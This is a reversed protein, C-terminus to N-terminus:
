PEKRNLSLSFGLFGGILAGILVQIGFSIKWHAYAIPYSLLLLSGVIGYFAYVVAILLAEALNPPEDTSTAPRGKPSTPAAPTSKAGSTARSGSGRGTGTSSVGGPIVGAQAAWAAVGPQHAQSPATRPPPTPPPTIGSTGGMAQAFADAKDATPARAAQREQLALDELLNTKADSVRDFEARDGTGPVDPHVLKVKGRYAAHIENADAGPALGLVEYDTRTDM